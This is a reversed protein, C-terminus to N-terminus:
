GIGGPEGRTPPSIAAGDLADLRAVRDALLEHPDTGSLEALERLLALRLRAAAGVPDFQTGGPPEPVVSTAAGLAVLQAPLLCLERAARPAQTASRWLIAACGEPSIVSLYSRELMLLRDAACLALAGGSGGEGIVVSVVPTRLRGIRLVTHAIASSQGREEAELGPHAGPTDVLTVVPLGFREAYDLLRIAKRYGEPRPMGFNRGVLEKVSHGKQHGIVVVTRGGLSAIGAVIATDDGVLRDGHLEVFDDFATRLYDLTTPRNVDRAAQVVDWPDVAVSGEVEDVVSVAGVVELDVVDLDMVELDAVEALDPAAALNAATVAPTPQQHMALLRILLPRLEARDEVRDVLGHALLFEATQFGPPLEERITQAVVRPGAFGIHAGHEAIVLAGLTAFSASVGGFTPDTLLCISLVGAEHLRGFAQSTRAMQMLSLVGEQMRAGGSACVAVLPIRRDLATQAVQTVRRGVEVGMSGGLFAFDMVVLAVDHGGIRATGGIVAESEGSREAADRLRDPYPRLDTFRLPDPERAAFESRSFSGPDTLQTIREHAGLRLHYGCETCVRLNRALRKTYLM